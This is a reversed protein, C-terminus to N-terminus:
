VCSNLWLVGYGAITVSRDAEPQVLEGTIIDFLRGSSQADPPIRYEVPEASVNQICIVTDREDASGRRVVFLEAPSGLIEQPSEPSFATHESRVSLLKRLRHLVRSRLSGPDALESSLQEYSLKPRNISRKEGTREVGEHWNRSGLMSHIYVAPIGALAFMIAHAAVFARIRTEESQNPDAIASFYSCNIEYPIDGEATSKYSVYGGRSVVTEVLYEREAHTLIGHTPLLGIGDHSALFNFYTTASSPFELSRAWSQLHSADGRIFADLTLPPLPFNYVLHSEDFGNGFYSINEEHPVNTETILIAEPAVDELILRLLRVVAHTQPLHICSTGPEKWLYAVADLRIVRVGRALYFLLIDIMEFLVRPEAYNLDPQDASFTTWVHKRGTATDVPTLLPVARPRAIPSTDADPSVTIFYRDYPSEGRLFRQFWEHSSSCHNLVLDAMLTYSSAIRTLDSWDGLEPNVSRYDIVAFGDDSSYPCFPLVHVGSIAGALHLDLFEHLSRLPSQEGDYITDGYTVLTSDRQDLPLFTQRGNPRRAPASTHGRRPVASNISERMQRLRSDLEATCREAASAGYLETFIQSAKETM